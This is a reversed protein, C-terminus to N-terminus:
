QLLIMRRTMVQGGQELRSFYIGSPLGAANFTVLHTGASQVGDVLTVVQQGLLNYVKLSVRGATSLAFSITTSPNFPNPYNQALAFTSPAAVPADHVATTGSISFDVTAVYTTTSTYSVTATKSAPETYGLRDAEITYSGPALGNIAYAGSMDTVAFGAIVNNRLAYILTGAHSSQPTSTRAFGRVTSLGALSAPLPRAYITIGSVSTGNIAIRTAKRWRTVVTDTSYFSPAYSGLPVAMVIYNGPPLGAVSYAGTSDTDTTFARGARGIDSGNWRDRFAVIRAPVGVKKSSDVVTGAISGLVVAPLKTLSFSIGSSDKTLAITNASLLDPQNFFFEQAYGAARAFAIYDGPPLPLSYAGLSDTKKHFVHQSQGDIRLDGRGNADFQARFDDVAANANLAFGARVFAVDANKLAVGASDTVVGSVIVPVLRVPGGRLTFNAITEAPADAVIVTNAEVPNTKGDYWQSMYTPLLSVARLKYSGPDVGAIKYNGLSDTRVAYVFLSPGDAIANTLQLLEVVIGPIGVGLTDAVKGKVVGNGSTVGVVFYQEAHGLIGALAHVEVGYWGRATPTWTVLGTASDVVMGQPNNRGGRFWLPGASDLRTARMQYSYRVGVRAQLPPQSVIAVGGGMPGGPGGDPQALLQIPLLALIIAALLLTVHYRNSM